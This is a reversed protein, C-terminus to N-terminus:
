TISRDRNLVLEGGKAGLKSVGLLPSNGYSLGVPSLGGVRHSSKKPLNLGLDRLSNDEDGLQKRPSM